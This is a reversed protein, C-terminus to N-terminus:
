RLAAATDQILLLLLLAIVLVLEAGNSSALSLCVSAEWTNVGGAGLAYTQLPPTGPIDEWQCELEIEGFHQENIM